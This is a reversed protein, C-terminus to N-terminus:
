GDNSVPVRKTKSSEEADNSADGGSWDNPSTEVWSSAQRKSTMIGVSAVDHCRTASVATRTRASTRTRIRLSNKNVNANLVLSFGLGSLEGYIV